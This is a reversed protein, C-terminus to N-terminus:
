APDSRNLPDEKKREALFGPNVSERDAKGM